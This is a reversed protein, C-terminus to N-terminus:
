LIDGEDNDHSNFHIQIGYGEEGGNVQTVDYGLFWDSFHRLLVDKDGSISLDNSSDHIVVHGTVVNLVDKISM